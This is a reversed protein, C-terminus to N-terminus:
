CDIVQYPAYPIFAHPTSQTGTKKSKGDNPVAPNQYPSAPPGYQYPPYYGPGYPGNGQIFQVPVGNEVNPSKGYGPVPSINYNGSNMLPSNKPLTSAKEPQVRPPASATRALDTNANGFVV